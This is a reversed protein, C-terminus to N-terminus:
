AGFLRRWFSPKKDFVDGYNTATGTRMWEGEEVTGDPSILNTRGEFHMANGDRVQRTEIEGVRSDFKFTEM